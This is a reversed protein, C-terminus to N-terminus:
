ASINEKKDSSPTAPESKDDLGENLGEKFSKIAKGFSRAADPLRSPGFFLIGVAAILVLEPWSINFM